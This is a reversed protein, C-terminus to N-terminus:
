SSLITGILDDVTRKECIETFLRHDFLTAWTLELSIHFVGKSESLLPRCDTIAMMSNSLPRNVVALDPRLGAQPQLGTRSGLEQDLSRM